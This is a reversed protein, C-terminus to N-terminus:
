VRPDATSKPLKPKSLLLCATLLTLPIVLFWFPLVRMVIGSDDHLEPSIAHGPDDRRACPNRLAAVGWFGTAAAAGVVSLGLGAKMFGRRRGIATM